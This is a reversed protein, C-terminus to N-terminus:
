HQLKNGHSLAKLCRKTHFILYYMMNRRNHESGGQLTLKAKRVFQLRVIWDYYQLGDHGGGDQHKDNCCAIKSFEINFEIVFFVLIKVRQWRGQYCGKSPKKKGKRRGRETDGKGSRSVWSISSNPNARLFLACCNIVRGWQKRIGSRNKVARVVIQNDLKIVVTSLKYRDVMDLADNLGMVEGSLADIDGNHLRIAAGIVSGDLRCLIM